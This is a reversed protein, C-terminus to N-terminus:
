NTGTNLTTQNRNSHHTLLKTRNRSEGSNWRAEFRARLIKSQTKTQRKIVMLKTQSYSNNFHQVPTGKEAHREPIDPCNTIIAKLLRCYSTIPKPSM